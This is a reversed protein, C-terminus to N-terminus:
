RGGVANRDSGFLVVESLSVDRGLGEDFQKLNHNHLEVHLLDTMCM